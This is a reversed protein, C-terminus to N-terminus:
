RRPLSYRQAVTIGLANAKPNILLDFKTQQEVPLDNPKAGRTRRRAM